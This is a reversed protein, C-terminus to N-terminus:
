NRFHLEEWISAVHGATVQTMLATFQCQLLFEAEPLEHEVIEFEHCRAPDYQMAIAKVQEHLNYLPLLRKLEDVADELCSKHDTLDSCSVLAAEYCSIARELEPESQAVCDITSTSQLVGTWTVPESSQALTASGIVGLSVALVSIRLM